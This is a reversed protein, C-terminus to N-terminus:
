GSERFPGPGPVLLSHVAGIGGWLGSFSNLDALGGNERGAKGM